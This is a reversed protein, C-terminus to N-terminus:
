HPKASKTKRIFILVLLLFLLGSGALIYINYNAAASLSSTDGSVIYSSWYYPHAKLMNANNLYDLKARQLAIDKKEGAKLYTYYADMIELGSKDQIEWLTMVIAPVGAYVFGRALSMIGEGKQLKGTGTNCASLTVMEANLNLGYIEYTHIVNEGADKSSKTFVLESFMPISDNILAHMALHIIKYKYANKLFNNRTAKDNKYVKGGFIRQATQAEEAANPITKLNNRFNSMGTKSDDYSPSFAVLKHKAEDKKNFYANYKLSSSYSYSVPFESLLYPLNRYNLNAFQDTSNLLVEFSLYGLLGDPIIILHKDTLHPYVPKVLYNWMSSAYRIFLGSENQNSASLDTNKLGILYHLAAYFSSDIDIRAFAKDDKSISFIYIASDSLSYELIVEDADLQSILSEIQIVSRDYKLAFYKPYNQEINDILSDRKIMLKLLRSNFFSIKPNLKRTKEQEDALLKRLGNIEEQLEQDYAVVDLPVEATKLANINQISNLLENSKSRESLEFARTFYTDDNTQIYLEHSVEIALDFAPKIKELLLYNNEKDLNKSILDVRELLHSCMESSEVLDPLDGKERYRKYLLLAKGLYADIFGIENIQGTYVSDQQIMLLKNWIDISRNYYSSASDSNIEYHLFYNGLNSLLSAYVVANEGYDMRSQELAGDYYFKSKTFEGMGSLFNAYDSFLSIRRPSYIKKNEALELARNFYQDALSDNGLSVFSNALNKYLLLKTNIVPKYKLGELAYQIASNFDKTKISVASLNAYTTPIGAKVSNNQIYIELARKYFLVAQSFDYNYHANIGKNINIAALSSYYQGYQREYISEAINFYSNSEKLKGNLAALMGYNLYFRAILLSDISGELSDLIQRTSNLYKYATNYRGKAAYVIGINLYADYLNRNYINNEELIQVSKEYYKKANEFDTLQFYAIGIYNYTKSLEPHNNGFVTKKFEISILLTDIGARNDKNDVLIKGLLHYAQAQLSDNVEYKDITELGKRILLEARTKDTIWFTEAQLIYARLEANGEKNSKNKDDTTGTQDAFSLSNNIFLFDCGMMNIVPSSFLLVLFLRFYFVPLIKLQRM